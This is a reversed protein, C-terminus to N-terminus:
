PVKELANTVKEWKGGRFKWYEGTESDLMLPSNPSNTLMPFVLTSNTAVFIGSVFGNTAYGPFDWNTQVITREPQLVWTAPPPPAQQQVYTEFTRKKLVSALINTLKQDEVELILLRQENIDTQVVKSSPRDPSRWQNNFADLNPITYVISQDAKNISEVTNTVLLVIISAIINTTM